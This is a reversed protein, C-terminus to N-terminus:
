QENLAGKIFNRDESIREDGKLHTKIYGALIRSKKMM